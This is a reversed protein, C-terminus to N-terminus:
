HKYPVNVNQFLFSWKDAEQNILMSTPKGAGHGANTQISILTPRECQQAAQLHAAFKFSHAPVVRDDHDATTVLTAPYCTGARVNHVPSYGYLYDFMERNDDATGYDYAWGAGATFKHYRLMDLVGVAPFAVAFLDPRMTMCAGVLLGGNSGGAIAMHKSDTYGKGILYTAAAIFDNFVNRKNLKTGANHWADGYEGGGRINAVAYIGGAEMFVANSVSFSPTINVNFGGYGYLLLPNQGNLQLGKKHTIIMPIRTGDAGQYFVQSSEFQSIDIALTPKKYRTTKGSKIDLHYITAPTTYSTFTYYVGQEREKGSFGSATGLGPLAIIRELKGDIGYQKVLSVADKLYQAFFKGGCTTVSLPNESEPILDRWNAPSPNSADVTVLKRNPAKNNTVIFLRGNKAHIVEQEHEFGEVVPLIPARSMTLNQLYLENGYTANAASIILFNEDETVTGSVYRRRMTGDGFIVQDEHQPDGLRHFYLKHQDTMASLQSGSKPIDYASYYFGTKGRWALGSFKVNQLTDGIRKKTLADLVIVKTWDAGGESIQFACLSGDRSFSIDALSTTGDKSFQNPDLFVEVKGNGQQRYLVSQNQLGDNKFFYTFKGENFPASFKEYNWVTNLRQKIAARFPIKDLYERTVRNQARVWNETERSRDDELWRYPDTVQVGQIVETVDVKQTPPYHITQAHSNAGLISFLPM